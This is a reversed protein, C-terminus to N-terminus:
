RVEELELVDAGYLGSGGTVVQLNRMAGPKAELVSFPGAKTLPLSRLDRPTDSVIALLVDVGAPGQAQLEWGTRPLSMVQGAEIRNNTDISNPFLLELSEDDSGAMLLYVYGPHSSILRLQLPDKGIRLESRDSVLLVERRDDRNEYLDALAAVVPSFEDAGEPMSDAELGRRAYYKKRKKKLKQAVSSSVGANPRPRQAANASASNTTSSSSVLLPKNPSAAGPSASTTPAPKVPSTVPSNASPKAPSAAVVASSVVAPATALALPQSSASTSAPASVPAAPQPTAPPTAAAVVPAAATAPAFKLAMRTNGVLTINHPLYGPVGNVRNNIKDQACQRVEEASIAGSDDLDRAAGAMCDRWSTTAMGGSQPSDLSVENDRAAAIYIFNNSGKSATSRTAPSLSRKVVNIPTACAAADGKPQWFKAQFAQDKGTKKIGTGRTTAGGSHCADLLVIVKAAKQGLNKLRREIEDDYFGQMDQTILGEACREGEGEPIIQRTGHGSYYIFVQDGEAVSRELEDFAKEMGARTLEANRYVKMHQPKVGMQQAILRASDVDYSVGSLNATSDQYQGIAMILAHVDGAALVAPSVSGLSLSLLSAALLKKM